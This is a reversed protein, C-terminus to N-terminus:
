ASTVQHLHVDTQPYPISINADDFALKVKENMDFHVGWYDASKVWPRVVFNVSSDGLESLAIMPAPDSLIRDDEEVLRALIQKAQKFDDDYGIGFVMDVRRTPKTSYNTIAGGTVSANGVIIQKNDGTRFKTAFVLVEEVVGTVGGAEVFDGAKFPRFIILMVGAAFNSLSGQLAFGVALGAAAIMAAFSGTDIGLRGLASIVVLAMAGFYVISGLFGILTADVDARKLIRRFIGTITKAVMYGIVLVAAAALLDPGYNIIADEITKIIAEM